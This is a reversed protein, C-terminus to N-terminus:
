RVVCERVLKSVEKGEEEGGAPNSIEERHEWSVQYM